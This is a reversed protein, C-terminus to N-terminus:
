SITRCERGDTRSKHITWETLADRQAILCLIKTAVKKKRFAMEYTQRVVPIGVETRPWGNWDRRKRGPAALHPRIFGYDLKWEHDSPKTIMPENASIFLLGCNPWPNLLALILNRLFHNLPFFRKLTFRVSGPNRLVLHKRSKV